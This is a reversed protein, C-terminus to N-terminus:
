VRVEGCMITYLTALQILNKFAIAALRIHIAMASGAVPADSLTPEL